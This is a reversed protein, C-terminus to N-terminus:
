VKLYLAEPFPSGWYQTASRTVQGFWAAHEKKSCPLNCDRSARCPTTIELSVQLWSCWLQAADQKMTSQPKKWLLLLVLLSLYFTGVKSFTSQKFVELILTARYFSVCTCLCNKKKGIWFIQDFIDNTKNTQKKKTVLVTNFYTLQKYISSFFYSFINDVTTIEAKEREAKKLYTLLLEARAHCGSSKM